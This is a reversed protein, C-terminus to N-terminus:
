KARVKNRNKFVKGMSEWHDVWCRWLGHGWVGWRCGCALHWRCSELHSSSSRWSQKLFFRIFKYFERCRGKGPKILKKFLLTFHFFFCFSFKNSWWGVCTDLLRMLNNRCEREEFHEGDHTLSDYQQRAQTLKCKFFRKLMCVATNPPQKNSLILLNSM